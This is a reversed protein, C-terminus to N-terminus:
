TSPKTNNPTNCRCTEKKLEAIFYTPSIGTRSKFANTFRQTSSFGAEESLAYNTYNRHMKNEKLLVVIYDIKLDNIYDSFKKQRYRHIIMSLYKTNSNFAAALKFLTWDKELFRKSKEFKELQARISEISGANM